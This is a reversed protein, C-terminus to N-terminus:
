RWVASLGTGLAAALLLVFGAILLTTDVTAAAPASAPASAPVAIHAHTAIWIPSAPNAPNLPNMPNLPHWPSMPSSPNLASM